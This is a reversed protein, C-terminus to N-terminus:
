YCALVGLWGQSTSLIQEIHPAVKSVKYATIKLALNTLKQLPQLVDLATNVDEDWDQHLITLM